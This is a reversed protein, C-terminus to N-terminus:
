SPPTGHPPPTHSPPPAFPPPCPPRHDPHPPTTTLQASSSSATRSRCHRRVQVSLPPSPSPASGCRVLKPVKSISRLTRFLRPPAIARRHSGVPSTTVTVRGARHRSAYRLDSSCVDSSWDSIRM